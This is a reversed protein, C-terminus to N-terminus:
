LMCPALAPPASSSWPCAYWATPRDGSRPLAFAALRSCRVWASSGPVLRLPMPAAALTFLSLSLSLSLYLSISLSVVEFTDAGAALYLCSFTHTPTHIHAHPHACARICSLYLSLTQTYTHIFPPAPHAIYLASASQPTKTGQATKDYQTSFFAKKEKKDLSILTPLVHIIHTFCQAYVVIHIVIHTCCCM